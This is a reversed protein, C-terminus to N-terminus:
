TRACSDSSQSTMSFASSWYCLEHGASPAGASPLPWCRSSLPVKKVNLRECTEVARSRSRAHELYIVRTSQNRQLHGLSWRVQHAVTGFVGLIVRQQHADGSWFVRELVLLRASNQLPVGSSKSSEKENKYPPSFVSLFITWLKDYPWHVGRLREVLGSCNLSHIGRQRATFIDSVGFFLCFDPASAEPRLQLEFLSSYFQICGLQLPGCLEAQCPLTGSERIIVAAM